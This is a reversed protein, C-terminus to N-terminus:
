SGHTEHGQCAIGDFVFRLDHIPVFEVGLAVADERLAPPLGGQGSRRGQKSVSDRQLRSKHNERLFSYLWQHDNGRIPEGTASRTVAPAACLAPNRGRTTDKSREPRCARSPLGMVAVTSNTESASLGFVSILGNGAISQGVLAVSKLLQAVARHRDENVFILRFQLDIELRFLVRNGLRRGFSIRQRTELLNRIDAM